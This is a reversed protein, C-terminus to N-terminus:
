LLFTCCTVIMFIVSVLTCSDTCRVELLCQEYEHRLYHVKARTLQAERELQCLVANTPYEDESFIPRNKFRRENNCPNAMAEFEKSLLNIKSRNTLLDKLLGKGSAYTATLKANQRNAQVSLTNNQKAHM